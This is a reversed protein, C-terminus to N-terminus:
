QHNFSMLGFHVRLGVIPTLLKGELSKDSRWTNKPKLKRRIALAGFTCLALTGALTYLAGNVLTQKLNDNM